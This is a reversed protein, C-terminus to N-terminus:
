QMALNETVWWAVEKETTTVSRTQCVVDFAPEVSGAMPGAVGPYSEGMHVYSPDARIHM